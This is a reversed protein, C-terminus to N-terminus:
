HSRVLCASLSQSARGGGSCNLKSSGLSPVRFADDQMWNRMFFRQARSAAYVLRRVVAACCGIAIVPLVLGGAHSTDAVHVYQHKMSTQICEISRARGGYAGQRGTRGNVGPPTAECCDMLHSDFVCTAVTADRKLIAIIHVVRWAGCAMCQRAASVCTRQMHLVV